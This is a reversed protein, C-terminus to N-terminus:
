KVGAASSGSARRLPQTSGQPAVYYGGGSSSSRSRSVEQQQEHHANFRDVWDNAEARLAEIDRSPYSRDSNAKEVAAIDAPTAVAAVRDWSADPLCGSVSRISCRYRASGTLLAIAEGANFDGGGTRGGTAANMFASETRSELRALCARYDDLGSRAANLQSQNSPMPRDFTGCTQRASRSARAEDLAVKLTALPIQDLAAKFHSSPSAEVRTRAAMYMRDVEEPVRSVLADIEALAPNQADRRAVDARINKLCETRLNKHQQAASRLNATLATDTPSKMAIAVFDKDTVDVGCTRVGLQATQTAAKAKETTAKAALDSELPLGANVWGSNGARLWYLKHYGADKARQVALVSLQCRDHHCYFLMPTDKDGGTFGRFAKAYAQRIEESDGPAQLLEVLTGPIKDQTRMAAVVALGLGMREIMCSAERPSITVAGPLQLPMAGEPLPTGKAVAARAERGPQCLQEAAALREGRSQATAPWATFLAAFLVAALPAHPRM